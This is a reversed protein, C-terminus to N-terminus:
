TPDLMLGAKISLLDIRSLCQSRGEYQIDEHRRTKARVIIGPFRVQFYDQIKSLTAQINPEGQRNEDECLSLYTNFARVNSPDPLVRCSTYNSWQLSIVFTDSSSHKKIFKSWFYIALKFMDDSLAILSSSFAYKLKSISCDFSM